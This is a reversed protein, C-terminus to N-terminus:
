VCSTVCSANEKKRKKKTLAGVGDLHVTECLTHHLLTYRCVYKSAGTTHYVIAQQTNKEAVRVIERKKEEGCEGCVRVVVCQTHLYYM